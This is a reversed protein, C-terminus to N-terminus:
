TNTNLSKVNAILNTNISKVNAALNTNYSKLNAPGLAPFIWGSNGGGDISNNANWTAGGTAASNSISLRDSTNTGTTDSITWTGSAGTRALTILKGVAGSVNWSTVTTTVNPFTITHNGTGDDKFDAFTNTGTITNNGTSTGRSYWINNFTFGAGNFTTATNTSQTIKLTYTGATVTGVSGTNTFNFLNGRLLHTASGFTIVSSRFGSFTLDWVSLIWNNVGDVCSFTAGGSVSLNRNDALTLNNKLTIVSGPENCIINHNLTLGATDIDLNGLGFILTYGSSTSTMGSICTISGYCTTDVSLLWAPTNTAGTWNVGGINPMDISVTQSGSDFSNADFYVTDQPLPPYTAASGGGNTATFWKTIDSWNGTDAHWYWDNATTFTIGSNRGCDGSGGTAASLDWSAGGAGTIDRFDSNSISTAAATITRATGLASSRVFVRNSTTAGNSITITGSVTQNANLQLANTKIATTPTYTLNTFTNAGLILGLAGKIIVNYYTLGGGDFLQGTQTITSSEADFTLNTVDNQSWTGVNIAGNGLRLTRTQTSSNNFDGTCNFTQDNVDLTGSSFFGMSLSSCYATATVTCTGGGSSSNFIVADSSTPVTEGGAGGSAAAWHTTDSADWDGTGGVWYRNAM